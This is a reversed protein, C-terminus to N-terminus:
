RGENYHMFTSVPLALVTAVAVPKSFMIKGRQPGKRTVALYILAASSCLATTATAKAFSKPFSNPEAVTVKGAGADAGAGAGSVHPTRELVRPGSGDEYVPARPPPYKTTGPAGDAAAAASADVPAEGPAPQGLRGWTGKWAAQKEGGSTSPKALIGSTSQKALIRAAPPPKLTEPVVGPKKGTGGTGAKGDQPVEVLGFMGLLEQAEKMEEMEKETPPTPSPEPELEVAPQQQQEPPVTISRMSGMPEVPRAVAAAAAAPGKATTDYGLAWWLYDM